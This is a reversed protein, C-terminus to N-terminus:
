KAIMFVKINFNFYRNKKELWFNRSFNGLWSEHRIIGKYFVEEDSRALLFVTTFLENRRALFMKTIFLYKPSCITLHTQNLKLKLEIKKTLENM